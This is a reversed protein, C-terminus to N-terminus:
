DFVHRDIWEAILAPKDSGELEIAISRTRDIADGKLVVSDTTASVRVRGGSPVPTLFRVKNFGYNIGMARGELPRNPLSTTLHVLLSLTLFGHAITGGFPSAAAREPDVHIHQHDLTADAFANIREQSIEVWDGTVAAAGIDASLLEHAREAHQSM